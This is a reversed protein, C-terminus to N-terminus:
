SPNLDKITFLVVLEGKPKNESYKTIFVSVNETRVEEYIKTLERAVTIEIDGFVDMISKLNKVIKHPSEYIIVTSEILKLGKKLNQLLRIRNGEKLPLFGLFLFKDTPLGSAVLATTLASPGPIAEVRIGERLVARILRFGPDSIGPTGADSILAVNKGNKLVNIINPIRKEENHEFYSVLMKDGRIGIHRLLRAAMRTDECAIYEERKLVEIARLTIDQLNGIPTAVIFLIGM